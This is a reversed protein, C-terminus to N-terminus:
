AQNLSTIPGGDTGTKCVRTNGEKCSRGPIRYLWNQFSDRDNPISTSPQAVWIRQNQTHQFVDSPDGYVRDQFENSFQRQLHEGSQAPPRMPNDGIETLLINMFPNAATPETRSQQGIVDAVPKGAAEIGKVLNAPEPVIGHMSFVVDPRSPQVGFGERLSGRNKMGYYASASVIAIAISITLYIINARLLALVLGLYIGFRTFSNLATTTCYKAGEHFPFFDYSEKILIMPDEMWFKPCQTASM